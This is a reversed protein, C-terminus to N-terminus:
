TGLVIRLILENLRTNEHVHGGLGQTSWYSIGSHMCKCVPARLAGEPDWNMGYHQWKSEMRGETMDTSELEAM